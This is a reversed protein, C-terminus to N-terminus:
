SEHSRAPRLLNVGDGLDLTLLTVLVVARCACCRDDTMCKFPIGVEVCLFETRNPAVVLRNASSLYAGFASNQCWQAGFRVLIVGDTVVANRKSFVEQVQPRTRTNTLCRTMEASNWVPLKWELWFIKLFILRSNWLLVFFTSLSTPVGSEGGLGGGGRGKGSNLKGGGVGLTEPYIRSEQNIKFTSNELILTTECDVCHDDSESECPKKSNM